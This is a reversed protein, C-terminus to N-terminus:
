INASQLAEEYSDCRKEVHALLAKYSMLAYKKNTHNYYIGAIIKGKNTTHAIPIFTDLQNMYPLEDAYYLREERWAKSFEGELSLLASEIEGQVWVWDELLGASDFYFYFM